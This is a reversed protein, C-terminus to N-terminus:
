RIWRPPREVSTTLPLMGCSFHPLSRRYGSTNVLSHPAAYVATAFLCHLLRTTTSQAQDTLSNLTHRVTVHRHRFSERRIVRQITIINSICRSYPHLSLLILLLAELGLGAWVHVSMSSVLTAAVHGAVVHMVLRKSHRVRRRSRVSANKVGGSSRKAGRLGALRFVPSCSAQITPASFWPRAFYATDIQCSTENINRIEMSVARLSRVQVPSTRM